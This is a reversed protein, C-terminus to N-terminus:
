IYRPLTIEITSYPDTTVFNLDRKKRGSMAMPVLMAMTAPIMGAGVAALVASSDPGTNRRAVTPLSIKQPQQQLKLSQKQGTKQPRRNRRKKLKQKKAFKKQSQEVTEFTSEVQLMGGHSTTMNVKSNKLPPLVTLHVSKQVGLAQPKIDLSRQRNKPRKYGKTTSLLVWEGDGNTPHTDPHIESGRRRMADRYETPFDPLQGDTIIGSEFHKEDKCNTKTEEEDKYYGSIKLPTKYSSESYSPRVQVKQNFIATPKNNNYAQNPRYNEFQQSYQNNPPRQINDDYYEHNEMQPKINYGQGNPRNLASEWPREYPLSSSYDNWPRQSPTPKAAATNPHWKSIKSISWPVPELSVWGKKDDLPNKYNNNNKPNNYQKSNWNSKSKEEKFIEDPAKTILDVSEFHADNENQIPKKGKDKAYNSLFQQLAVPAFENNEDNSQTHTHFARHEFNSPEYHREYHEPESVPWLSEGEFIRIPDSGPVDLDYVKDASSVVVIFVSHILLIASLFFM